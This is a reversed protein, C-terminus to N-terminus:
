KTAGTSTSTTTGAAPTVAGADPQGGLTATSREFFAVIEFQPYEPSGQRCDGEGGGGGGSTAGGGGGAEAAKATSGLAVRTVGAVQRLRTVFRAVNAQDTTCGTIEIAPSPLSSRLANGGGGSVSVEPSVTGVLKTLWVDDPMVRSVERLAYPWDFRSRALSRVTEVRKTRVDAVKAYPALASAKTEAADAEVTVKALDSEKGAVSRGLVAWASVLVVAVALVGLLVYVGGGSRSPAAGGGRLDRPILNVAKM